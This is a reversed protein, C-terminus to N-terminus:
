VIKEKMIRPPPADRRARFLTGSFVTSTNGIQEVGEWDQIFEEAKIATFRSSRDYCDTLLGIMSQPRKSTEGPTSTKSVVYAEAAMQLNAYKLYTEIERSM